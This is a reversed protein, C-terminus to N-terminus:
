DADESRDERGTRRAAVKERVRRVSGKFRDYLRKAFPSHSSLVALGAVVFVWGQLIPVFGGIIGLGILGLGLTWDVAKRLRTTM